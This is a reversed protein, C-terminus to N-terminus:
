IKKDRFGLLIKVKSELTILGGAAKEIACIAESTEAIKNKYEKKKQELIKIKGSIAREMEEMKEKLRKNEEQISERLSQLEPLKELLEDIKIQM